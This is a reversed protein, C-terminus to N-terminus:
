TKSGKPIIYKRLWKTSAPLKEIPTDIAHLTFRGMQVLMRLDIERGDIAIIVPDCIKGPIFACEAIEVVKADRIQVLDLSADFYNNLQGPWLAWVCADRDEHGESVAFYLAVLPSESWDLLRTPLGYHQALFLWGFYDDPEPTKTLSRTPSRALFHGILGSENYSSVGPLKTPRRFVHAQLAWDADAHGRWCATDADFSQIVEKTARVADSLDEIRITATHEM